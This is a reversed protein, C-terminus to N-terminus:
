WRCSSRTTEGSTRISSDEGSGAVYRRYTNGLFHGSAAPSVDITPRGGRPAQLQVLDIYNSPTSTALARV